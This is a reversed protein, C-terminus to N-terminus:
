IEKNRSAKKTVKEAIHYVSKRQPSIDAFSILSRVAVAPPRSQGTAGNRCM